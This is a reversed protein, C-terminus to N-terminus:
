RKPRAAHSRAAPESRMIQVAPSQSAGLFDSATDFSMLRGTAIIRRVAADAVQQAVVGLRIGSGEISQQTREANITARSAACRVSDDGRYGLRTMPTPGYEVGIALGIAADSDVADLCLDFSSQMGNACMVAQRVSGPGDDTREGEAVCGQICDGVFRVRKGDFDDNLVSNLEERIVHITRVAKTIEVAGGEIAQDVFDTFGDIDAFISAMGMRVSNAPSLDAFKVSALPLEPRKFRFIPEVADQAVEDVRRELSDFAFSRVAERIYTEDLVTRGASKHVAGPRARQQATETLFIGAEDEAAALKAAHNAPRGLFLTDKEHSRGTTMALCRGHDIGFRIRSPFGHAQGLREAAETLKGALAVARTIQAAADGAPSTIVAHLRAGHYDVRDGDDNDVVADWVRYHMNLFRLLRRHSGETESGGEAVLGDFDLLQGYLHVGEVLFAQRIPLRGILGSKRVTRQARASDLTINSDVDPVTKLHERIRTKARDANWSM